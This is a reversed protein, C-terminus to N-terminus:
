HTSIAQHNFTKTVCMKILIGAIHQVSVCLLAFMYGFLLTKLKLEASVLHYGSNHTEIFNSSAETHKSIAIVGPKVSLIEALGLSIHM